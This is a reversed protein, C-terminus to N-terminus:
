FRAASCVPIARTLSSAKSCDYLSTAGCGTAAMFTHDALKEQNTKTWLRLREPDAGIELPAPPSPAAQRAASVRELPCSKDKMFANRAALEFSDCGDPTCWGTEKCIPAAPTACQRGGSCTDVDWHRPLCEYIVDSQCGTVEIAALPIPKGTFTRGPPDYPVLDPRDKVVPVVASCSQHSAAFAKLAADHMTEGCGGVVIGLIALASHAVVTSATM